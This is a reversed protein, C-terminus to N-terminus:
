FQLTMGTILNVAKIIGLIFTNYSNKNTFCKNKVNIQNVENYTNPM